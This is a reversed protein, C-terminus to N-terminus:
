QVIIRLPNSYASKGNDDEVILSYWTNSRPYVTFSLPRSTMSESFTVKDVVKGREILTVSKLGSVAAFTYNLSLPSGKQHQIESGFIIEPFILPGQTAYSHGQKLAAVLNDLTNGETIHVYTRAGGSTENWVDHVDSGGVLFVERGSNWLEWTKRLTATNEGATIEVLNFAPDYGGPVANPQDGEGKTELSKFYGYDGYPHNVHILDAGMRRALSFIEQVSAAGVDIDIRSDDAVPYVNFHAWSPSLETGALFPISRIASLRKMEANNAISDHDSLFSFSMGAALESRLVYEPATFGDLVDSHHHLDIAFWHQQSPNLQVPIDVNLQRTQGSNVETKVTMLPATFGGGASVSFQYQGPAVQLAAQGIPTLETFFTKEGLFEILPKYGQKISIRADVAAGQADSVNFLVHGPGQLGRHDLEVTEGSVMEVTQRNGPAHGKATAYVTYVGVPLNLQYHGAQGLAWTYPEGDKMVIIAPQEVSRNNDSFVDGSLTGYPQQQFEIETDVLPALSGSDEVQLWAEFEQSQGAPLDHQQYRDRGSYLLRDAFPAHLGLVWEKDYAASWDATATAESSANKGHLGPVGFLFGGDPWVVYGSLLGTLDTRGKNFMVTKIHVRRDGSRIHFRTELEVEGWDRCTRIVVDTATHKVLEVYQYTTPWASWNNPMFDALSAIDYGVVGNRVVAVDVIGGRAVGWPPASDVAFALAFLGNNVTIDKAGHAEGRPIETPGVHVDIDAQALSVFFLLCLTSFFGRGIRPARESTPLM